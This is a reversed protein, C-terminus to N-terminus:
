DDYGTLQKRPGTPVPYTMPIPPAARLGDEEAGPARRFPIHPFHERLRGLLIPRAEGADVVALVEPPHGLISADPQANQPPTTTTTYTQPSVTLPPIHPILIYYDIPQNRTTNLRTPKTPIVGPNEITLKSNSAQKSAKCLGM